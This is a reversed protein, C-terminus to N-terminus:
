APPDPNFIVDEPNFTLKIGAADITYLDHLNGLEGTPM